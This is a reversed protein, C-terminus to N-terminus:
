EPSMSAAPNAHEDPDYDVLRGDCLSVVRDAFAADRSRLANGLAALRSEVASLREELGASLPVPGTTGAM